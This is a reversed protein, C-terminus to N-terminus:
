AEAEQKAAKGGQSSIILNRNIIGYGFGIVFYILILAMLYEPFVMAFGFAYALIINVVQIVNVVTSKRKKLKSLFLPSVMLMGTLVMVVLPIYLMSQCCNFFNYKYLLVMLVANTVGAFTTPMGSFYDPYSDSDMANYKALRMAACVMYVASGAFIAIKNIEYWNAAFNKYAFTLMFAPAIGFAILDALSDFQAGFESSANFTRAAFGDLKDLLTCFIIFHAGMVVPDTGGSFLGVSWCISAAGLLFSLSTFANPVIFKAKKM